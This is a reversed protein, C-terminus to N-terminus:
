WFEMWLTPFIGCLMSNHYLSEALGGFSGVRWVMSICYGVVGRKSLRIWTEICLAELVNGGAVTVTAGELTHGM